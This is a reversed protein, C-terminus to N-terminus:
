RFFRIFIAAPPAWLRSREGQPTILTRHRRSPEAALVARAGARHRQARAAVGLHPLGHLQKPQRRAGGPSGATRAGAGMRLGAGGARVTRRAGSWEGAGPWRTSPHHRRRRGRHAQDHGRAARPATQGGGDAAISVAKAQRGSPRGADPGAGGAAPVGGRRGGSVGSRLPSESEGGARSSWLRACRRRSSLRASSSACTPGASTTCCGAGSRGGANRPCRNMRRSSGNCRMWGSGYRAYRCWRSRPHRGSSAAARRWRAGSIRPRRRRRRGRQEVQENQEQQQQQQEQKRQLGCRLRHLTGAARPRRGFPPWRLPARRGTVSRRGRTATGSGSPLVVFAACAASLSM